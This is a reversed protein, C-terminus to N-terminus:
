FQRTMASAAQDDKTRTKWYTPASGRTQLDLPRQGLLRMLIGIPTVVGFFIVIMVLPSVVKHLVAGFATWVRNLPKLLGPRVLAVVAFAIGAALFWPWNSGHGLLSIGAPYFIRSVLLVTHM